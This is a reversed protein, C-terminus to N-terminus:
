ADLVANDDIIVNSGLYIRKPVRITVGKGLFVRRGCEKLFFPYVKSRLYIGLGGPFPAFFAMMFEYRLLELLSYSGVFLDQYKKVSSWRSESVKKILPTYTM